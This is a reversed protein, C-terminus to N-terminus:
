EKHLARISDKNEMFIKMSSEFEVQINVKDMEVWRTSDFEEDPICYEFVTRCINEEKLSEYPIVLCDIENKIEQIKDYSQKYHNKNLCELGHKDLLNNMSNLADELNREVLIIKCKPIRRVVDKWLLTLGSDAVGCRPRYKFFSSIDDKNKWHVSPEHYCTTRETTLFESLWKTRSRPYGFILFPDIM